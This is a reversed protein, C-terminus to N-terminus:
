IAKRSLELARKIELGTLVALFFVEGFVYIHNILYPKIYRIGLPSAASILLTLSKELKEEAHKFIFAQHFVASSESVNRINKGNENVYCYTEVRVKRIESTYCNIEGHTNAPPTNPTSQSSFRHTGCFQINHKILANSVHRPTIVRVLVVNRLARLHATVALKFLSNVLGRRENFHLCAETYNTTRLYMLASVPAPPAPMPRHKHDVNGM